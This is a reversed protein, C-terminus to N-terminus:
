INASNMCSNIFESSRMMVDIIHAREVFAHGERPYLILDCPLNYGKCARDFAISQSVPVREDAEGHLLLIPPIDKYGKSFERISSVINDRDTINAWPSRGIVEIAFAPVDSSMTFMDFDTPCAGCIAGKYKWDRESGDPLKSWGNRVSSLCGMYGGYSWGMIIIKKKDILGQRIGKEVLAIVDEYDYKGLTPPCSKSFEEGRQEV